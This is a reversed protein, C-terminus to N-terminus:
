NLQRFCPIICKRRKKHTEILVTVCFTLEEVLRSFTVFFLPTVALFFHSSRVAIVFPIFGWWSFPLM